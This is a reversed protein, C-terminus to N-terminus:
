RIPMIVIFVTSMDRGTRDEHRLQSGQPRRHQRQGARGRIRGVPADSTLQKWAEFATRDFYSQLYQRRESYTAISM